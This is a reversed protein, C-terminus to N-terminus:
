VKPLLWIKLYYIKRSLIKAPRKFLLFSSRAMVFRWDLFPLMKPLVFSNNHLQTLEKVGYNRITYPILIGRAFPSELRSVPTPGAVDVKALDREVV